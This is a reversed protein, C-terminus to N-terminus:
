FCSFARGAIVLAVLIAAAILTISYVLLPATDNTTGSRSM